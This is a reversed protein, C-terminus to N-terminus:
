LGTNECSIINTGNGSISVEHEYVDNGTGCDVVYPIGYYSYIHDSGSGGYASPSNALQIYDSGSGGDAIAGNSAYIEDSGSGGYGAGGFSVGAAEFSDYNGSVWITDGGADGYVTSGDVAEIWDEGSGGHIEDVGGNGCIIDNGGKGNIVDAGTSGFLIDNKSTGNLTGPSNLSKTANGPNSCPNGNASVRDAPLLTVILTFVILFGFLARRMIEEGNV